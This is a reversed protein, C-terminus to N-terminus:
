RLAIDRPGFVNDDLFDILGGGWSVRLRLGHKDKPVDFVFDSAFKTGHAIEDRHPWAPDLAKEALADVEYQEGASDVLVPRHNDLRYGVRVAHNRVELRVVHFVGRPELVGIRTETRHALVSFGFDDWQIEGGQAVHVENRVLALLGCLCVLGITILLSILKWM